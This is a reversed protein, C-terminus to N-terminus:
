MPKVRHLLQKLVYKKFYSKPYPHLNQDYLEKSYDLSDLDINNTVSTGFEKLITKKHTSYYTALLKSKEQFVKLVLESWYIGFISKMESDYKKITDLKVKNQKLMVEVDM